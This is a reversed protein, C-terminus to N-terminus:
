YNKSNRSIIKLDRTKSNLKCLLLVELRGAMRDRNRNM